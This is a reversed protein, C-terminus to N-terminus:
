RRWNNLKKGKKNPPLHSDSRLSTPPIQSRVQNIPPRYHRHHGYVDATDIFTIGAAIAADVVLRTRESGLRGGFNNCGLGLASVQLGTGGLARKIM